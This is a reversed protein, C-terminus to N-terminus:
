ASSHDTNQFLPLKLLEPLYPAYHQWHGISRTHIPQRAQWASATRIAHGAPNSPHSTDVAPLGLWRSLEAMCAAPASALEEYTVIRISAPYLSKWHGMLRGCGRIVTAIDAMDCAYDHARDHFSQAWLSRALDRANRRCHIIRAHPWLAMILDVHLLNLPQKDIFWRADSDDQRLHAAYVGAAEEFPERCERPLTSTRHALWALWGLEGRNCVLRHRSLLEALLTTGSRPVGVIFVPTWDAPPTLHWSLAPAACRADVMRKWHKRSWPHSAKARANAERLHRTAQAYDALDDCAKGLAFLTTTRAQESLGPRELLERFLAIDPHNPDRYTQLSSLGIPINWEVADAAHALAFEYHARASPFRGLQIALMGAYAHLRPDASGGALARECIRSAPEPRGFDDLMEIAQIVTDVDHSGHEFGELTVEAAGRARGQEFLLRALLFTAGADAPHRSLRKRLLHEADDHRHRQWHIGALGLCLDGSAPYRALAEAFVELAADLDGHLYLARGCELWLPEPGQGLADLLTRRASQAPGRDLGRRYNALLTEGPSPAPLTPHDANM